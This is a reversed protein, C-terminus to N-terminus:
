PFPQTTWQLPDVPVNRIRLDWHLHPGSSLGTSGIHALRDGARVQDGPAVFADSLHFYGTMVGLGHDIIVILGRLEVEDSFVVTGDAPAFVPAGVPGPYDVGTHFIQVPGSNYSRGDGYGASIVTSTIPAQFLGEWQPTETFQTYYDALFADEEARVAPDLLANLEDPVTVQQTGYNGSVITLEQAFPRWPRSGSGALSLVATGPETFADIGVLAVFGAEHPAFRLPQGAFQGSPHGDLLNEVYISVTSGQRIPLPRVQIDVWEGPLYRYPEAGPIRLRQGPFLYAPMSLGNAAALAEPSLGYRAAITLLTDNPAVIHPSGTVPQPSASGTRSIVSVTQGPQLTYFAHILRNTELIAARSTNFAAAVDALTHGVGVTFVTAVAEGAGGPIILQQGVFLFDGETMNNVALLDSVSVNYTEAIYTLNEGEQVTHVQPIPPEEESQALSPWIPWALSILISLLFSVALRSMLHANFFRM